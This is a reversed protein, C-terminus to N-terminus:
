QADGTVDIHSTQVPKTAIRQLISAAAIVAGSTPLLLTCFDMTRPLSPAPRKTAFVIAPDYTFM